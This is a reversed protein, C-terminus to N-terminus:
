SRTVRVHTSQVSVAVNFLWESHLLWEVASTHTALHHSSLRYASHKWVACAVSCRGWTLASRSWRSLRGYARMFVFVRGLHLGCWFTLSVSYRDTSLSFLTLCHALLRIICQFLNALFHKRGLRPLIGGSAHFSLPFDRFIYTPPM